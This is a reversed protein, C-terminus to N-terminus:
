FEFFPFSIWGWGSFDAPSMPPLPAPMWPLVSCSCFWSDLLVPSNAVRAPPDPISTPCWAPLIRFLLSTCPNLGQCFPLPPFFTPPCQKRVVGPPPASLSQSTVVIARIILVWVVFFAPCHLVCKSFLHNFKQVNVCTAATGIVYEARLIFKVLPYFESVFLMRNKIHM